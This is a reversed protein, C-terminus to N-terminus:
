LRDTNTEVRWVHKNVWRSIRMIHRKRIGPLLDSGCSSRSTSIYHLLLKFPVFAM